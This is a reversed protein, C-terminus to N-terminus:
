GSAFAGSLRLEYGLGRHTILRHPSSPNDELKQRLWCIHVYLTRTDGLYDTEWVEKMLRQRSIVQGPHSMLVQLLRSELPTLHHMGNPGRVQGREVDLAVGNVRLTGGNLKKEPM